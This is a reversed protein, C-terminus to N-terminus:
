KKRLYAVIDALQEKSMWSAASSMAMADFTAGPPVETRAIIRAAIEEAPEASLDPLPHPSKRSEGPLSHCSDCRLKAFTLKGEEPDGAPIALSGHVVYMPQTTVTGAVTRGCAVSLLLVPIISARM